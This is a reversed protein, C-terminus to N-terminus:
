QSHTNGNLQLTQWVIWITQNLNPKIMAIVLNLRKVWKDMQVNMLWVTSSSHFDNQLGYDYKYLM